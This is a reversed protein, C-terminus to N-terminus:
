THPAKCTDPPSRRLATVVSCDETRRPPVCTDLNTCLAPQGRSASPIGQAMGDGTDLSLASTRQLLQLQMYPLRRHLDLLTLSTFLQYLPSYDSALVRTSTSNVEHTCAKTVQKHQLCDMSSTHPWTGGSAMFCSTAAHLLPMYALICCCTLCPRSLLNRRCPLSLQIPAAPGRLQMYHTLAWRLPMYESICCTLCPCSPLHSPRRFLAVQHRRALAAHVSSHLLLHPRPM